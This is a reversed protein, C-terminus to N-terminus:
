KKKNVADKLAKGASFKARKGAAIKIPAKTKPNVGNRAATKSVSFTGFGVLTIKDNKTLAKTVVATFAGLAKEAAVKSIDADKAMADVLDQKTM